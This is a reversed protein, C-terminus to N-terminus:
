APLLGMGVRAVLYAASVATLLRALRDLPPASVFEFRPQIVVQLALSFM